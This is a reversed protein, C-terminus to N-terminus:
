CMIECEGDGFIESLINTANKYQSGLLFVSDSHVGDEKESEITRLVVCIQVAFKYTQPSNVCLNASSRCIM